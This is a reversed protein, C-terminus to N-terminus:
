PTGSGRAGSSAPARSEAPPQTSSSKSTSSNRGRSGSKRSKNSQADGSNRKSDAMTKRAAQARTVNRLADAMFEMPVYTASIGEFEIERCLDWNGNSSIALQVGGLRRSLVEKARDVDRAVLADLARALALCEFQHHAFREGFTPCVKSQYHQELTAGCAARQANALFGPAFRRPVGLRALESQTAPGPPHFAEHHLRAVHQDGFDDDDDDSAPWQPAGLAELQRLAPPAVLPVHAVRPRPPQPRAAPQPVAAADRLARDLMRGARHSLPPPRPAPAPAAALPPPPVVPPAPVVPPPPAAAEREERKEDEDDSESASPSDEPDFLSGHEFAYQRARAVLSARMRAKAGHRRTDEAPLGLRACLLVLHGNPIAAVEQEVTDNDPRCWSRAMYSVAEARGGHDRVLLLLQQTPSLSDWPRDAAEGLL